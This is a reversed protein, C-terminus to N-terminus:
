RPQATFSYRRAYKAQQVLADVSPKGREFDHDQLYQIVDRVTRQEGGNPFRESLAKRLQALSESTAALEQLAAFYDNAVNPAGTVIALQALLARFNLSKGRKGVLVGLEKSSLSSKVVRYVNVFRLGRRPTGGVYPGLAEILDVEYDSLEMAKRAVELSVPLLPSAQPKQTGSRRSPDSTGTPDPESAPVPKPPPAPVPSSDPDHSSDPVPSLDPIPTSAGNAGVKHGKSEEDPRAIGRVFKKSSADAMPRVWYPIQFIKELYDHSTAVTAETLTRSVQAQGPPGGNGTSASGSTVDDLVLHKFVDQLSRSVWRADVAVVVVFLPFYLLLHIAQLVEVVKKPPCRDLDDIYLIIRDFRRFDEGPEALALSARESASLLEDDIGSLLAELRAEYAADEMSREEKDADDNAADGMLTALRSFDRRITAIIGLHKAYEGDTVKARIFHNLRARPTSEAYSTEAEALAAQAQALRAEAQIVEERAAEAQTTAAAVQKRVKETRKQTQAQIAADLKESFGQLENLARTARSVGRQLLLATGTMTTSLWATLNGIDALWEWSLVSQLLSKIAVLALPIVALVALIWIFGAGTGMAATLSRLILAGRKGQDKTDQIATELQEASTALGEIGLEAQLRALQTTVDTNSSLSKLFEDKVTSWFAASTTDAEVSVKAVAEELTNRAGDLKNRAERERRRRAILQEAAELKLHRSTVMQDFLADVSAQGAGEERRLWHDLSAFIHEVLSAWLNTEMYHWANFRIQVVDKCFPTNPTNPTDPARESLGAVDQHMRNMFYTKGSGWEGFVAISLPPRIQNSAAIWAFAQAERQVNLLDPRAISPDDIAFNAPGVSVTADPTTAAPFDSAGEVGRVQAVEPFLRPVECSRHGLLADLLHRTKVREEKNEPDSAAALAGQRLTHGVHKSVQPLQEMPEQRPVPSDTGYLDADRLRAIMDERSLGAEEFARWTPGQKDDYLALLLHEMHVATKRADDALRRAMGLAHRTSPSLRWDALYGPVAFYRPEPSPASWRARHYWGRSPIRMAVIEGTGDPALAFLLEADFLADQLPGYGSGSVPRGVRELMQASPLQPWTTSDVGDVADLLSELTEPTPRPGSLGASAYLEPSPDSLLAYALGAADFVPRDPRNSGISTIAADLSGDVLLPDTSAKQRAGEGLDSPVTAFLDRVHSDIKCLVVLADAPGVPGSTSTRLEQIFANTFFPDVDLRADALADAVVDNLPRPPRPPPPTTADSTVQETPPPASM